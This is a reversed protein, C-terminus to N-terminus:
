DRVHRNRIYQRIGEKLEEIARKKPKRKGFLKQHIDESAFKRRSADQATIKSRATAM